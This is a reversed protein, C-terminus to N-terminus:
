GRLMSVGGGLGGHQVVLEADQLVGVGRVPEGEGEDAGVEGDVGVPGVVAGLQGHLLGEALAGVAVEVDVKVLGEASVKPVTVKRCGDRGAAVVEVIIAATNQVGGYRATASRVVVKAVGDRVFDAMPEPQIMGELAATRPRAIGNSICGRLGASRRSTRSTPIRARALRSKVRNIVIHVIRIIRAIGVKSRIM